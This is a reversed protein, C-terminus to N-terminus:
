MVVLAPVPSTGKLVITYSSKMLNVLPAVIHCFMRSTQHLLQLHCKYYYGGCMVLIKLISFINFVM